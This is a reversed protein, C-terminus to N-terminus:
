AALHQGCAGPDLAQDFPDERDRLLDASGGVQRDGLAVAGLALDRPVLLAPREVLDVRLLDSRRHGLAGGASSARASGVGDLRSTICLGGRRSVDASAKHRASVSEPPRISKKLSWATSNASM